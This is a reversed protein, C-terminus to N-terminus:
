QRLEALLDLDTLVRIRRQLCYALVNPHFLHRDRTCIVDAQHEEATFVVHDDLPDGVVVPPRGVPVVVIDALLELARIFREIAADDLQHRQRLRPAKLTREVEALLVHSCVLQHPSQALRAVLAAAPGSLSWAARVLINADCVVIM